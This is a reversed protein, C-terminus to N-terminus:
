SSGSTIKKRETIRTMLMNHDQCSDICVDAHNGLLEVIAKRLFSRITRLHYFRVGADQRIRTVDEVYVAMMIIGREL